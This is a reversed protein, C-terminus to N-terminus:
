DIIRFRFTLDLVAASWSFAGLLFLPRGDSFFVTGSLAGSHSRGARTCQFDMTHVRTGVGHSDLRQTITECLVQEIAGHMQPTTPDQGSPLDISVVFSVTFEGDPERGLAADLAARGSPLEPQFAPTRPRQTHADSPRPPPEPQETEPAPEPEPEPESVRVVEPEAEEALASVAPSDAVGPGSDHHAETETEVPAEPSAETKEVPGQPPELAALVVAM